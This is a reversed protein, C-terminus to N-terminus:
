GWPDMERGCMHCSGQNDRFCTHRERSQEAWFRCGYDSKGPVSIEAGGEWPMGDGIESARWVVTGIYGNYDALHRPYNRAAKRLASKANQAEITAFRVGDEYIEFKKM